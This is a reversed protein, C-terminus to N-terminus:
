EFRNVTILASLSRMKVDEESYQMRLCLEEHTEGGPFESVESMWKRRARSLVRWSTSAGSVALLGLCPPAAPRGQRRPDLLFDSTPFFNDVQGKSTQGPFHTIGGHKIFDHSFCILPLDGLCVEDGRIRNGQLILLYICAWKRRVKGEGQIWAM